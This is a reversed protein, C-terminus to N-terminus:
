AMLQERLPRSMDLALRPNRDIVQELRPMVKDLLTQTNRARVNIGDEPVCLVFGLKPHPRVSVRKGAFMTRRCIAERIRITAFELIVHNVADDESRKKIRVGFRPIAILYRRSTVIVEIEEPKCRCDGSACIRSRVRECIEQRARDTRKMCAEQSLQRVLVSLVFCFIAFDELDTLVKPLIRLGDWRSGRPTNDTFFGYM